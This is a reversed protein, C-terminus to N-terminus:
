LSRHLRYKVTGVREFDKISELKLSKPCGVHRIIGRYVVGVHQLVRGSYRCAIAFDVADSDVFNPMLQCAAETMATKNRPCIGFKPIDDPPVNAKEILFERVYDWCNNDDRYQWHDFRDFM